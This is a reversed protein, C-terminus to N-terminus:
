AGDAQGTAPAALAVIALIILPATVSPQELYSDFLGVCVLFVMGFATAAGAARDPAFAHPDAWRRLGARVIAGFLLLVLVSGAIGFEGIIGVLSSFPNTLAGSRFTATEAIESTYLDYAVARYAEGTHPPILTPLRAAEKFLVDSARVTAARTAYAGPGFGIWTNLDNRALRDSTRVILQVKPNFTALSVYPKWLGDVILRSVMSAVQWGVLLTAIAVGGLILRRSRTALQPWLVTGVFLAVAPIAALILHKSDTMLFAYALAVLLASVVRRGTAVRLAAWVALALLLAAGLHHASQMTGFTVDVASGYAFDRLLTFQSVELLALPVLYADPLGLVLPKLFVPALQAAILALWAGLLIARERETWPVARAVFLLLWPSLFTLLFVPLSWLDTEPGLNVLWSMLVWGVVAILAWDVADLRRILRSPGYAVGFAVLVLLYAAFGAQLSPLCAAILPLLIVLRPRGAIAFGAAAACLIALAVPLPMTRAHIDPYALIGIVVAPLALLLAWRRWPAAEAKM